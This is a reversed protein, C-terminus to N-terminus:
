NANATGIKPQSATATATSPVLGSPHVMLPHHHQVIGLLFDYSPTAPVTPRSLFLMSGGHNSAQHISDTAANFELPDIGYLRCLLKGFVPTVKIWRDEIRIEAYWHLFTTGGVLLELDPTSLHNEVTAAVLRAPIGVARCTSVYLISKHLCFGAKAEAVASSRLGSERLDTGFVEYNIGDRVAYFLDRAKAEATVSGHSIARSLFQRVNGHSYDFVASEVLLEDM